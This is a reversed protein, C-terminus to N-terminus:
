TCYVKSNICITYLLMTYLYCICNFIIQVDYMKKISIFASKNPDSNNKKTYNIM